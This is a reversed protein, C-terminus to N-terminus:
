RPPGVLGEAVLEPTLEKAIVVVARPSEAAAWGQFNIKALEARVAALAPARRILGFRAFPRRFSHSLLHNDTLPASGIIADRRRDEPVHALGARRLDQPTWHRPRDSRLGLCEIRGRAPHELGALCRVLEGQGNGEV